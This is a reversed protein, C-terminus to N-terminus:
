APSEYLRQALGGALTQAHGSLELEVLIVACRAAGLGALKAIEDISMPASSLLNLVIEIQSQPIRGQDADGSYEPPEPMDLRRGDLRHLVEIVDDADRVLVAGDRILRNSGASRPDLPSGPVAMVERGQEGAMRASILSGSREAAEIVVVGESLGTIQRNRRPFDRAQGRYGFANESFDM